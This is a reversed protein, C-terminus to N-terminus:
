NLTPTRALKRTSRSIGRAGSTLSWTLRWHSDCSYGCPEFRLGCLSYIKQDWAKIVSWWRSPQFFYNKIVCTFSLIYSCHWTPRLLNTTSDAGTTERKSELRKITVFFFFCAVFVIWLIFIIIVIVFHRRQNRFFLVALFDWTSECLHYSSSKSM